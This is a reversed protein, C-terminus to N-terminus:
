YDKIKKRLTTPSIELVRATHTLNWSQAKLMHEIHLKEAMALSGTTGAQSPVLNYKETPFEINEALLTPSQALAVARTLVNELERVNGPWRHQELKILADETIDYVAKKLRDGITRLFHYALLRLDGHRERLPPVHIETVAVRYFLDERFTGTQVREGLNRHTAFLPRAKFRIPEVGGVREFVNEQLLRLLKVQLDMEMDGIEDFFVTGEGARELKGIKQRDAGTFAGKEHGFLESELLTPVIAGCHIAVFPKGPATAEHLARAVLEKGTGSEGTILVNVRSTSLRGIQKLIDLVHPDSGIIEHPLTTAPRPPAVSIDQAKKQERQVKELTLQIDDSDFPKRIYDYAGRQMASITATMDSRGSIVVVPISPFRASLEKLLHLGDADPLVLDLFVIEPDWTEILPWGAAATGATKVTYGAAGLLLQISRCLGHDDDIILLRNM